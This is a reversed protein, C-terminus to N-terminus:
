IMHVQLDTSITSWYTGNHMQKEIVLVRTAETFENLGDSPSRKEPWRARMINLWRVTQQARLGYPHDDRQNSSSAAGQGARTHFKIGRARSCYCLAM